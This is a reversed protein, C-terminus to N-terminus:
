RSHIYYYYTPDDDDWTRHDRTVFNYLKTKECLITKGIEKEREREREREREKERM